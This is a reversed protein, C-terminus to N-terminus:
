AVQKSRTDHQAKSILSYLTMCWVCFQCLVWKANENQAGGVCMCSRSKIRATMFASNWIAKCATWANQPTNTSLCSLPIQILQLSWFSCLVCSCMMKPTTSDCLSASGPQLSRNRVFLAKMLCTIHFIRCLSLGPILM